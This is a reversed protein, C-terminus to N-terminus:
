KTLSVLMEGHEVLALTLANLTGAVENEDLNELQLTDKFIVYSEEDLCFAGHVLSRNATLLKTLKETDVNEVKVLRQEVVLIPDECDIVLNCFGKSEDDVVVMGDEPITKTVAIGLNTLHSVVKEFNKMSYDGM